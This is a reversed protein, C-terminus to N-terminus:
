ASKQTKAWAGLVGGSHKIKSDNTRNEYIKFGNAIRAGSNTGLHDRFLGLLTGFDDLFPDLFSGLILRFDGWFRGLFQGVIAGFDDLFDDWSHTM